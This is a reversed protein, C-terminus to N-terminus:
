IFKLHFSSPVDFNFKSKYAAATKPFDTIVGDVNAANVFTNIQVIPDSFADFPISSFENMLVQVYVSLNFAQFQSVVDTMNQLFGAKFPLVSMRDVVVSDAFTQIDAITDNLAGSITEDVEYVLEYNDRRMAKLVSSSTSQIMVKTATSSNYGAEDLADSVADTISM